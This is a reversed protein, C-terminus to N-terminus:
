GGFIRKWWPRRSATQSEPTSEDSPYGEDPNEDRQPPEEHSERTRESPEAGAEDPSAAPTAPANLARMQSLSEGLLQHARQLEEDRRELQRELSSIRERLEDEVGTRHVGVIDHERVATDMWVYVKGDSDKESELTGRRIRQRVGDPGIGLHESAERVSMRQITM